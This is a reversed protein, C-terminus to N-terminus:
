KTNEHHPWVMETSIHDIIPRYNFEQIVSSNDHPLPLTVVSLARGYSPCDPVQGDSHLGTNGRLGTRTSNTTSLSANPCPKEGPSLAFLLCDPHAGFCEPHKPLSLKHGQWSHYSEEAKWDMSEDSCVIGDKKGYAPSVSHLPVTFSCMWSICCYIQLRNISMMMMMMMMM